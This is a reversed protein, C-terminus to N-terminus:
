KPPEESLRVRVGTLICSKSDHADVLEALSGRSHDFFSLEDKVKLSGSDDVTKDGPYKKKHMADESEHAYSSGISEKGSPVYATM